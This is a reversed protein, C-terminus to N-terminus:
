KQLHICHNNPPQFKFFRFIEPNNDRKVYLTTLRSTRILILSNSTILVDQQLPSLYYCEM